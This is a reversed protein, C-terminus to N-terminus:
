IKGSTREFFDKRKELPLDNFQTYGEPAIEAMYLGAALEQHLHQRLMDLQGRLLRETGEASSVGLAQKVGEGIIDADQAALARNAAALDARLQEVEKQEDEM